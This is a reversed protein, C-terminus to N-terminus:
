SNNLLYFSSKSVEKSRRCFSELWQRRWHLRFPRRKRTLQKNRESVEVPVEVLSGLNGEHASVDFGKWLNSGLEWGLGEDNLAIESNIELLVYFEKSELQIYSIARETISFNPPSSTSTFAAPLSKWFFKLNLLGWRQRLSPISM